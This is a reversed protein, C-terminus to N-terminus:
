QYINLSTLHCSGIFSPVPKTLHYCPSLVLYVSVLNWNTCYAHVHLSVVARTCLQKVETVNPPASVTRKLVTKDSSPPAVNEILPSEESRKNEKAKENVTDKNSEKKDEFVEDKREVNKDKATKKVKDKDKLSDEIKEPATSEKQKEEKQNESKDKQNCCINWNCTIKTISTVPM